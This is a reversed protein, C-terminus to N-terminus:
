SDRFYKNHAVLNLHTSLFHKNNQFLNKIGLLLMIDAPPQIDHWSINQSSLDYWFGNYLCFTAILCRLIHLLEIVYDFQFKLCTFFM